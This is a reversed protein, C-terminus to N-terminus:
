RVCFNRGPLKIADGHRQFYDLMLQSMEQNIEREVPCGLYCEYGGTGSARYSNLCIAFSDGDKVPRGQFALKM